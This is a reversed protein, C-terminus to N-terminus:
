SFLELLATAVASKKEVSAVPVVIFSLSSLLYSTLTFGSIKVM